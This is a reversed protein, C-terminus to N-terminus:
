TTAPSMGGSPAVSPTQPKSAAREAAAKLINEYSLNEIPKILDYRRSKCKYIGIDYPYAVYKAGSVGVKEKTLYYVEDFWAAIFERTKKGPFMPFGEIPNGNADTEKQELATMVVNMRRTKLDRIGRGVNEMRSGLIDWHDWAPARNEPEWKIVNGKKDVTTDLAMLEYLVYEGLESGTEIVLTQRDAYKGGPGFWAGKGDRADVLIDSIARYIPKKYFFSERPISDDIGGEGKDLSIGLPTPFKYAAQTKGVGFRGYLLFSTFPSAKESNEGGGESSDRLYYPNAM